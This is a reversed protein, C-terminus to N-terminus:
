AAQATRDLRADYCDRILDHIFELKRMVSENLVFPYLDHQGMSRNVGNLAVTLPM